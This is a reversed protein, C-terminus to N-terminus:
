WGDPHGSSPMAPAAWSTLLYKDLLAANSTADPAVHATLDYERRFTRIPGHLEPPAGKREPYSMLSHTRMALYFKIKELAEEESKGLMVAACPWWCDIAEPDRDVTQAGEAFGAKLQTVADRSIGYPTIAGDGIQGVLRMARPGPRTSTLPVMSPQPYGRLKLRHGHYDVEEGACLGKVAAAYKGYESM